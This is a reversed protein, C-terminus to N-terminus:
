STYESQGRTLFAGKPSPAKLSKKTKKKRWMGGTYIPPHPPFLPTTQFHPVLTPPPRGHGPGRGRAGGQGRAWPTAPWGKIITGKQSPGV